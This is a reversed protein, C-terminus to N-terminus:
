MFDFLDIVIKCLALLTQPMSPCHTKIGKIQNAM